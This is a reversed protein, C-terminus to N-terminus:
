AVQGGAPQPPCDPVQTRPVGSVEGQSVDSAETRPVATVDSGGTPGVGALAASRAATIRDILLGIGVALVTGLVAGLIPQDRLWHGALAGIGASYVSWLSGAAITLLVFRRGPYRLAGAAVNVAVRGVPIFRATLVFLSGRRDLGRRAGDLARAVRPARMWGFRETGVKRGALYAISDGLVAGATAALCLPVLDLAHGSSLAVAASSVLVTESPVPPFLADLAAVAFMVLLLWPSAAAQLILDNLADM